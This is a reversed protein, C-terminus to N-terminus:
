RKFMVGRFLSHLGFVQLLLVIDKTEFCNLKSLDLTHVKGTVCHEGKWWGKDSGTKSMIAVRDGRTLSLQTTATAAYDYM